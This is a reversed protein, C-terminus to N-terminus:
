MEVSATSARHREEKSKRKEIVENDYLVVHKLSAM